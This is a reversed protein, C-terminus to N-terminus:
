KIKKKNPLFIEINRLNKSAPAQYHCGNKLQEMYELIFFM